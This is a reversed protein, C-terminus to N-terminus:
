VQLAPHERGRRARDQGRRADPRAHPNEVQTGSCPIHREDGGLQSARRALDDPDVLRWIGDGFRGRPGPLAAQGVDPEHGTFM